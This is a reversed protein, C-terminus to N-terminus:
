YQEGAKNLRVYEVELLVSYAAGSTAPNFSLYTKAWDVNKWDAFNSQSNRYPITTAATSDADAVDNLVLVPILHGKEWGDSYVVLSCKQLEALPATTAGSVPANSLVKATIVRVAKIVIEQDPQNRLQPVDPFAVRNVALAPVAVEVLESPGRPEDQVLIIHKNM